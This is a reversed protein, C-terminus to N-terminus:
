AVHRSIGYFGCGLVPALHAVPTLAGTRGIQVHIDEVVTTVQEAPFKYAVAFRPAKATYGLSACIKKNNIKIVIGDIDYAEGYKKHSWSMYYDQIDQISKAIHWETNVKFGLDSLYELEEAHTVFRQDQDIDPFELDYVFTQLNRQAVMSTDLQRLTGAALNRPNAYLPLDDKERQRNIEQLDNKTMWVEGVAVMTNKEAIRQPVSTIMKVNETINEGVQGDGRTAGIELLGGRYTM